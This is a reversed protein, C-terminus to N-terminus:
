SFSSWAAPPAPAYSRQVQRLNHSAQELQSFQALAAQRVSNLSANNRREVEILEAVMGRFVDERTARDMGLRSWEEQADQIHHIIQPQLQQLANQCDAVLLWNSSRIADGETEALRRWEKYAAQLQHDASM